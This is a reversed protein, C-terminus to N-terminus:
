LLYAEKRPYLPAIKEAQSNCCGPPKINLPLLNKAM